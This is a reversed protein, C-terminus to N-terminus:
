EILRLSSDNSQSLNTVSSLLPTSSYKTEPIEFLRILKQLDEAEQMLIETRWKIYEQPGWSRKCYSPRELQPFVHNNAPGTLVLTDHTSNEAHKSVWAWEPWDKMINLM